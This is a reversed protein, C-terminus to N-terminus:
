LRGLSTVTASRGPIEIAIPSLWVVLRLILLLRILTCVTLLLTTATELGTVTHSTGHVLGDAGNAGELIRTLWLEDLQRLALHHHGWLQESALLEVWELKGLELCHLL